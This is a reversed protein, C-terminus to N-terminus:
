QLRMATESVQLLLQAQSTTRGNSLALPFSFSVSAGKNAWRRCGWSSGTGGVPQLLWFGAAFPGPLHLDCCWSGGASCPLPLSCITPILLCFGGEGVFNDLHFNLIRLCTINGILCYFFSTLYIMWDLTPFSPHGTLLFFLGRKLEWKRSCLICM